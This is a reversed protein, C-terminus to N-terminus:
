PRSEQEPTFPSQSNPMANPDPTGEPWLRQVRSEFPGVDRFLGQIEEATADWAITPDDEARSPIAPATNPDENTTSYGQGKHRRDLERTAM